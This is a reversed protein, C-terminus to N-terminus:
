SLPISKTICVISVGLYGIAVSIMDTKFFTKASFAASVMLKLIALVSFIVFMNITYFFVYSKFSKNTLVFTIDISDSSTVYVFYVNAMAVFAILASILGNPIERVM